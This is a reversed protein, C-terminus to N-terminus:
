KRIFLLGNFKLYKTILNSVDFEKKNKFILLKDYIKYNNILGKNCYIDYFNHNVIIKSLNCINEQTMKESNFKKGFIVNVKNIFESITETENYLTNYSIYIKKSNKFEFFNNNLKINDFIVIDYDSKNKLKTICKVNSFIINSGVDIFRDNEDIYNYEFNNKINDFWIKKNQNDKDLIILIKKQTNKNKYFMKFIEKISDNICDTYILLGNIAFNTQIKSKIKIIDNTLEKNEIDFFLNYIKIINPNIQTILNTENKFIDRTINKNICLINFILENSKIYNLYNFSILKFFPELNKDNRLHLDLNKVNYELFIKINNKEFYTNTKKSQKNKILNKELIIKSFYKNKPINLLGCIFENKEDYIKNNKEYINKSNSIFLYSHFLKIKTM